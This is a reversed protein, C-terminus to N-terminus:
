IEHRKSSTPVDIEVSKPALTKGSEFLSSRSYFFSITLTFLKGRHKKILRTGTKDLEYEKLLNHYDKYMSVLTPFNDEYYQSKGRYMDKGDKKLWNLFEITDKELQTTMLINTKSKSSGKGQNAPAAAANISELAQLAETSELLVHRCRGGRSNTFSSLCYLAQAVKLVLPLVVLLVLSTKM